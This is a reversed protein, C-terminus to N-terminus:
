LTRYMVLYLKISDHCLKPPSFGNFTILDLEEAILLSVTWWVLNRVARDLTAKFTSLSAADVAERPLGNKHKMRRM